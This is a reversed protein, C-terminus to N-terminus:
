LTPPIKKIFCRIYKLPKYISSMYSLLEKAFKEKLFKEPSNVALIVSLENIYNYIKATEVELDFGADPDPNTRIFNLGLNEIFKQIIPDKKENYYVHGGEDIKKVLKHAGFCLDVRYPLGPIKYQRIM